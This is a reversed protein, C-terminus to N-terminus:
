GGVDDCIEKLAILQAEMHVETGKCFESHISAELEAQHQLPLGQKDVAHLISNCHKWM